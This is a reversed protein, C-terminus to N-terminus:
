SRALICDGCVAAMRPGPSARYILCCNRRRFGGALTGTFARALPGYQLLAAGAVQAPGALGPRARAIMATAGNIASAVNGWLVARSVSMGATLEVVQRVPGDLLGDRLLGAAHRPDGPTGPGGGTGGAQAGVADAPLSLPFPGGLVPQWWATGPDLELVRGHAAAVAIAPSLLRAVLGLQTVSAAVRQEVAGPPRDQALAARVVSVREGLVAPSELVVSLPRWPPPATDAPRHTVVAFYPGFAALGDLLDSADLQAPGADSV